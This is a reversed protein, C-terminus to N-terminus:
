HRAVALAPPLPEAHVVALRRTARTLAVYLARLGQPSEGAIRTPEVVVVGDFELGKVVDVPVLTVQADLGTRNPEGYDIGAADLGSELAPVHSPACIVAITGGGLQDLEDRVAGAVADGISIGDAARSLVPEDGTSRVSDPPRMGPAAAALVRGALEMIEVPTRYNVTLEVVKEGRRHPLHALVDNWSEPAWHGTAQGVDGVITMSGSLSRRSLMRLQM